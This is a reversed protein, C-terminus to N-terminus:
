NSWNRHSKKQLLTDLIVFDVPLIFKDNKILLNKVIGKPICKTDDAMEIVMDIPELKGIGLRKFMSFHMISISAGLDALANNFDLRGISCPLIFSGPDNEKLPLQNQLLGLCRPNMRVEDDEKTLQKNDVLDKMYKPFNDTQRIEKLLPRNIKIKKLSEMTEHILAEEVHQKLRNPFPIPPVYPEVYHNVMQEPLNSKLKPIVKSTKFEISKSKEDNSFGSNAFFYEIEELSYYFPTYLPTRDNAFITKCGEIKAVKTEVDATLTKVQSELKQIIKDHDIRNKETNQCFTKLWEDHEAQSKAVGVRFKTGNSGNFPAPHGFKGYKVEEVQKVEENLPCEKDLYSRIVVALADTNSNNSINRSSTGDHWKLSHDAMTQIATLAQTPTMGPIPGQSDLLQRNMTREWAQYLSEDSKQKFNHIDELQKATKSPPCYMQIFAKKLLDWTNVAGLNLRDVWRKASGTLTFPFVRLLVDDKSVRPISFISVINLVRDIHDHADENKNGSFTDERLERMFQSKIEFNVNGENELKVVGPAQNERSLALYQEMTLTIIDVGAM